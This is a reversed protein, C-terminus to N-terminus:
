IQVFGNTTLEMWPIIFISDGGGKFYSFVGFVLVSNRAIEGESEVYQDDLM